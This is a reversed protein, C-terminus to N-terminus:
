ENKNPKEKHFKCKLVYSYDYTKLDKLYQEENTYFDESVETIENGEKQLIVAIPIEEGEVINVDNVSKHTTIMEDTTNTEITSCSCGGSYLVLKEKKDMADHITLMIHFTSSDKNGLRGLKAVLRKKEGFEYADVWFECWEFNDELEADFVFYQKCGTGEILSKENKTLKTKVIKSAAYNKKNTIVFANYYEGNRLENIFTKILKKGIGKRRYNELVDISYIFLQKKRTDYRELEYGYVSGIVKRNEVAVYMINTDNGFFNENLENALKADNNWYFLEASQKAYYLNDKNVRIINM